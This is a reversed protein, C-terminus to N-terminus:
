LAAELEEILQAVSSPRQAPDISPARRFFAEANATLPRGCTRLALELGHVLVHDSDDSTAFPRAGALMEFAVVALAWSDWSEAPSEGRRQEPSMYAITGILAGPATHAVSDTAGPSLPRVLGFDLIKAVEGDEGQALFINEPKLDRHLLRRQHALTVAAWVGHLIRMVRAPELPGRAQLEERLSRGQLREMVLYARDDKPAGFDHVTVVHPHSLGAAAKAERRFRGIAGPNEM